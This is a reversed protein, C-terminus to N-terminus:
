RFATGIKAVGNVVIGRVTVSFGGVNVVIEFQGTLNRADVAAQAAKELAEFAGERSGFAAVVDDLNHRAQGFIHHLKNPDIARAGASPTRQQIIKGRLFIRRAAQRAASGIPALLRGILTSGSYIITPDPIACAASLEALFDGYKEDFDRQAEIGRRM